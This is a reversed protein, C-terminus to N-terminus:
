VKAGVEALRDTQELTQLTSDPSSAVAGDAAAIIAAILVFATLSVTPMEWDWDLGAHVAFMAVAAIWGTSMAPDLRHARRACAVVGSILAILALAGVLGLECLTELYLSHADRTSYLITRERRWETEFGGAGVGRIPHQAFGKLAVRWLNGRISEATALRASTAAPGQATAVKGAAALVFVIVTALAVAVGGALGIRRVVRAESRTPSGSRTTAAFTAAVAASLLMSVILVGGVVLGDTERSALSGALTRVDSLSAAALIAPIAAVIMQIMALLQLRSPALLVLLALGVAASLLAGRSLTLYLGLALPPGIAAAAVRLRRARSADGVMRVALVFGIAAAIGMANWYTLPQNLRGGAIADSSLQFVGPFIRESLGEGILVLAGFAVAPEVARAATRARFTAVGALVAALYIATRQADQQAADRLPAWSISLITWASLLALGGVALRASRTRPWCRTCVGAALAAAVWAVIGATLRARDFYGGSFFGLVTPGLLLAGVIAARAATV